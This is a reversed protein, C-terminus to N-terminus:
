RLRGALVFVPQLGQDEQSRCEPLKAQPSCLQELVIPLDPRQASVSLHRVLSSTRPCDFLIQPEFQGRAKLAFMVIELALQFCTTAPFLPRTAENRRAFFVSRIAHRLDGVPRQEVQEGAIAHPVTEIRQETDFAHGLAKLFRAAGCPLIRFARHKFDEGSPDRHWVVVVEHINELRKTTNLLALLDPDGLRWGLTVVTANDLYARMVEKKEHEFRKVKEETVRITLPRGITGLPKQYKRKPLSKQERIEDRLAAFESLSATPVILRAPDNSQTELEIAKDLLEDFNLSIIASVRDHHLFHALLDYSESIAPYREVELPNMQAKLFTWFNEEGTVDKYAALLRFFGAQEAQTRSPGFMRTVLEGDNGNLIASIIGQGTKIGAEASVGAGVIVVLKKSKSVNLVTQAWVNIDESNTGETLTERIRQFRQEQNVDICM